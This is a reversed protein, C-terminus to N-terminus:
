RPTGETAHKDNKKRLRALEKTAKAHIEVLDPRDARLAETIEHAVLPAMTYIERAMATIQARTDDIEQGRTTM